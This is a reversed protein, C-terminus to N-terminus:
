SMPTILACDTSELQGTLNLDVGFSLRPFDIALVEYELIYRGPQTLLPQLPIIDLANNLYVFNPNNADVILLDIVGGDEPWIVQGYGLHGTAKLPSKNPSEKRRGNPYEIYALRAVTNFAALDHRQNAIGGYLIRGTMSNGSPHNYTIVGDSWHLGKSLLHRSYTNTWGREMVQNKVNDPVTSRDSFRIANSAMYRLLGELLVGEEQLFIVNDFNLVYAIALEQNTFLSGRWTEAGNTDLKERRFDIFIYYDASKLNTIIGINVDQITQAQIAVYPDYGERRFWESLDAAVDREIEDRQGCSIFVKAAM